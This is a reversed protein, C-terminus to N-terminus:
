GALWRAGVKGEQEIAAILAGTIQQEMKAGVVPVKVTVDGDFSETAGAAGPALVITGRMSAPKGPVEVTLEATRTGDAAPGAWKEVQLVEITDGVLKKAVEPAPLLRSVRVEAGAGSPTASVDYSRANTAECVQKRFDEDCLMSFVDDVGADYNLETQLHDM